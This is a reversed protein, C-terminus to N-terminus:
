NNGRWRSARTLCTSIGRRSGTSRACTPSTNTRAARCCRSSSRKRTGSSRKWWGSSRRRRRESAGAVDAQGAREAIRAIALADGYQYSNITARYGSGGISVEMGDRDDIQWFLGNADRHTKEWTEYNQILDPLLEKVLRDDGTVEFRAWLSDAAWFSYRRPEGGQRFWFLSYDDLFRPDNFWRGEHLHHGAACSITNDKGAWSVPPLFESLVFGGPAQKLHKRLTWWRFFYTEEIERDPCDLLPVNNKLFDWAMANPIHQAYLERDNANFAEVHHRFAEAKLVLPRPAPVSTGEAAGARSPLSAAAIWVLGLAFALKM